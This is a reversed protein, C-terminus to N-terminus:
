ADPELARAMRVTPARSGDPYELRGAGVVRFGRKEYFAANYGPVATDLELRRVGPRHRRLWGEAHRLLRTGVGCRLRDLDVYLYALEATGADLLRLMAFGVTKGGAVAVFTPREGAARAFGAPTWAAIAGAVAAAPMEAAFIRTIAAARLGLCAEADAARFPRITVAEAGGGGGDAGRM